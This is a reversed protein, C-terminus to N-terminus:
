FRFQYNLSPVIGAVSLSTAVLDTTLYLDSPVLYSGNDAAVKNFNVSFPNMRGYANYLTFMLSHHFRNGPRNFQYTVSLDLRHYDPLRGNNRDGYLPVSYGNNYYFGIPTTFPTGTLFIWTAAFSWHKRTNYSLNLYINHPSDYSTPYEKGNNVEPINLYSRSWVYGIWGTLMGAPKRVMIEVGYAQGDGIRLEGEILPNYLMSAHDCYDIKNRYWKYYVEASFVVRSSFLNQVFGLTIQNSIQPKINPGAPAWVELSPFPGTANSLTQMFQTSRTYGATIMTNNLLDYQVSMRPEPSFFTSYSTNAPIQVTDIVQHNVDFYYVTTAGFDQWIPFRIGYRLHIREWLTQDNSVYLVYNMSRYRPVSPYSGSSEGNSLVVNGPNSRQSTVEGGIRITNSADLYWTFDSKLTLNAISSKWYDGEESLTLFYQYRSFCMTTNSFLKRNFLHNWRLTGAVNDWKAGFTRYFSQTVRQYDDMGGYLTFFLRDRTGLKLNFKGNIDFFFLHFGRYQETMYNLWNLTAIRGSLFFSSKDKVLPGELSLYSVYPGANGSISFRRMNGERATVDIVSSLRGGYRAPFDGKYIETNNIADPSFTSLFGFLHSPNYIPADDLLILNQDHNGGRVYFLSSGDGYSRIGPIVQLAKIIDPNGAFGPMQQLVKPSLSFDSAQRIPVDAVSNSAIIEVGPIETQQEEMEPSLITDTTLNIPLVVHHYGIFSFVIAYLDEPLTLSYFGYPNSTTGYQTGKVYINAGVLVEGSAHERIYGSINYHRISHTQRVPRGSFETKSPRLVVQNEVVLYDIDRPKLLQDLIDRISKRYARFTIQRDAHIAQPSYSFNINGKRGITELINSLPRDHFSVSIRQELNQAILERACLQIFLFLAFWTILQM